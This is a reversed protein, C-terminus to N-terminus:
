MFDKRQSKLFNQFRYEKKADKLKEFNSNTLRGMKNVKRKRGM